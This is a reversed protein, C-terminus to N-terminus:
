TTAISRRRQRFGALLSLVLMAVASPEPVTSGELRFAQGNVSGGQWNNTNGEQAVFSSLGFASNGDDRVAAISPGSNVIYDPALHVGVWYREQANLLLPVSLDVTLEFEPRTFVTTGTATRTFVSTRETLLPTTAPAGNVDQFFIVEVPSELTGSLEIFWFTASEISSTSSLIFDDVILRDASEGVSPGRAGTDFVIAAQTWTADFTILVLGLFFFHRLEGDGPLAHAKGEVILEASRFQCAPIRQVVPVYLLSYQNQSNQPEFRQSAQHRKHM